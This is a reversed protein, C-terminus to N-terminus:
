TAGNIAAEIALARASPVLGVQSLATLSQSIPLLLEPSPTQNGFLALAALITEGRKGISGAEQLTFFLIPDSPSQAPDADIDVLDGWSLADVEGLSRFAALLLALQSPTALPNRDAAARAWTELDGPGALPGEGALRVYPWLAIASAAAEPTRVAERQALRVWAAAKAPQGLAYHARGATEAFWLLDRRAPLSNLSPALVELMARKTQLDGDLELAAQLLEARSIDITQASTAQFLLARTEIAPLGDTSSVPNALQEPSFKFDRYLQALEAEDLLGRAVAREGAIVRTELNISPSIAMSALVMPAADQAAEQPLDRELVRVMAFQLASLDNFDVSKEAGGALQQALAMFTTDENSSLERLLDLGLNAQDVEGSLFQCFILAKSWFEHGVFQGINRRVRRCAGDFDGSSLSLNVRAQAIVQDDAREPVAALLDALSSTNGMAALRDIRLALISQDQEDTKPESSIETLLSTGDGVAGPTASPAKASTLLLRTALDRLTPSVIDDPMRILLRKIVLADSGAWLDAGLGGDAPSLTGISQPDRESLPNIEIGQVQPIQTSSSSAKPASQAGGSNEPQLPTLSLPAGLTGDDSSDQAIAPKVSVVQFLGAGVALGSILTAFVFSAFISPVAFNRPVDSPFSIM